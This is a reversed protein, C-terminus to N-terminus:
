RMARFENSEEHWWELWEGCLGESDFRGASVGNVTAREKTKADTYDARWNVVAREATVALIEFSVRVEEQEAIMEQWYREVEERGQLSEDFPNERYSVNASFLNAAARANRSEWAESLRQM